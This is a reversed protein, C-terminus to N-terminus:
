AAVARRRARLLVAVAAVVLVATILGAAVVPSAPTSNTAVDADVSTIVADPAAVVEEGAPATTAVVPVVLTQPAAEAPPWVVTVWGDPGAVIVREGLAAAAAVDPVASALAAFDASGVTVAPAPLAPDYADQAWTGEVYYYSHAGLVRVTEVQSAYAGERLREVASASGVAAAASSPAAEAAQMVADAAARPTHMLQPEEALYATYPTVIGFRTAIAVIEDILGARDGETRLETILDAVRRQAWIQAVVAHARSVEPFRLEYRLTRPGDAAEGRLTVTAAGSGAYRGTILTQNGAFIGSIQVPALDYVEVGEVDITIDTLVPTSIREFLRQVEADIREDPTVYHSTGAFGATLSDLLLTDVDFGVGFAFLQARRPAVSEVISLIRDTATVGATPLGDTLFIVTAPRDGRLLSFAQELAGSINTGGRATIAHVYDVGAMADSAPRLEHSFVDVTRGFSVIGFRDGEGLHELVYSAAARAQEIKAGSMSGSRDLVLVIDRDIAGDVDVEPALLLAFYGDEGRARHALLSADVLGTGGSLSLRFPTDAVWGDPSEWSVTVRGDGEREVDVNFGLAFASRVEWSVDVDATVTAALPRPSMRAWPVDILAQSAELLLPTTITFSVERQEGLPIPFARVEYLDDGISRLLAPDILRRVIDEYIRTADDADLLRGELTEPGGSLVLDTVSSGPPVPVIIRAEAPIAQPRVIPFPPAPNTLLLRYHSQVVGDTVSVAAHLTDLQAVAGAPWWCDLPCPRPLPPEIPIPPSQAHSSAPLANAALLLVLLSALLRRM